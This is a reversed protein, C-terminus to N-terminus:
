AGHVAVGEREVRDRFSTELEDLRLLDVPCGACRAVAIELALLSDSDVGDIVLDVDSHAGHEGTALSGIVWARAGPPLHAKATRLVSALLARAERGAAARIAAERRAMSAATEVPDM